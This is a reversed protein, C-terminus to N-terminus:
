SMVTVHRALRQPRLPHIYVVFSDRRLDLYVSPCCRPVLFTIIAGIILLLRGGGTVRVSCWSRRQRSVSGVGTM